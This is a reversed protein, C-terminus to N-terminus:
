PASGGVLGDLNHIPIHGPVLFTSTLASSVRSTLEVEPM